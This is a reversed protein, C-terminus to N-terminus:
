QINSQKEFIFVNENGMEDVLYIRIKKPYQYEVEHNESLEREEDNIIIKSKKYDIKYETEKMNLIVRDELFIASQVAPIHNNINSIDFFRTDEDVSVIYRGNGGAYFIIEDNQYSYPIYEGDYVIRIEKNNFTNMLYVRVEIPGSIPKQYATINKIENSYNPIKESYMQVLPPSGGSFRIEGIGQFEFLPNLVGIVLVSCICLSFSEMNSLICQKVNQFLHKLRHTKQINHIDSRYSQRMEFYLIPITNISLYKEPEYGQSKLDASVKKRIEYLRSKVLNKDVQMENAIEEMSLGGIFRLEATQKNQLSLKNFAKLIVHILTNNEFDQVQNDSAAIVEELTNEEETQIIRKKIRLKNTCENTAISFLWRHFAEPRKLQHIKTQVKYFVEQVIDEADYHNKLNSYAYYYLPACYFDYIDKLADIDGNQLKQVYTVDIRKNM